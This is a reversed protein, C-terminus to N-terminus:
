DGVAVGERRPDAGGELRGDRRMITHIGSTMVARRVAQGYATMDFAPSL